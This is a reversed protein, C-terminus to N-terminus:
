ASPTIRGSSQLASRVSARALDRRCVLSLEEHLDGLTMDAFALETYQPDAAFRRALPNGIMGDRSSTGGAHTWTALGRQSTHLVLFYPYQSLFDDRYAIHDKYCGVERWNEMLHFQTVELPLATDSIANGWDLLYMYRVKSSAESPMLETFTFADECLVPVHPPVVATLKAAYDPQQSVYKPLYVLDYELVMGLMATGLVGAILPRLRPPAPWQQDIQTILEAFLVVTAVAM